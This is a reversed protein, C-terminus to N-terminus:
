YQHRGVQNRPAELEPLANEEGTTEMGMDNSRVPAFFNHTLVAKPPLKVASSTPVSKTSKKATQVTDDSIRRKRRKVEQFDDGQATSELSTENVAVSQGEQASVKMVAKLENLM